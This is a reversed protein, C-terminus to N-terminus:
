ANIVDDAHKKIDDVHKKMDDVSKKTGYVRKKMEGVDLDIAEYEPNGGIVNGWVKSFIGNLENYLSKEDKAKEGIIAVTNESSREPLYPVYKFYDGIILLNGTIAFKYEKVKIRNRYKEPIENLMSIYRRYFEIISSSPQTDPCIRGLPGNEDTTAGIASIIIQVPPEGDNLSDCNMALKKIESAYSLFSVGTRTMCKVFKAGEIKKPVDDQKIRSYHVDLMGLERMRSYNMLVKKTEAVTDVGFCVQIFGILSSALITTAISFFIASFSPAEPMLGGIFTMIVTIILVLFLLAKVNKIIKENM